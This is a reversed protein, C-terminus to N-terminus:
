KGIPKGVRWRKQMLDTLIAGDVLDRSLAFEQENCCGSDDGGNTPSETDIPQHEFKIRKAPTGVDADRVAAHHHKHDHVTSSAAATTEAANRKGM